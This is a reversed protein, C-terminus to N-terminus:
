TAIDTLFFLTRAAIEGALILAAVVYLLGTASDLSRIRATRWAMVTLALPVVLGFVVRVGFFIAYESLLLQVREPRPGPLVLLLALLVSQGVLSGLCFLTLQVLPRVSLTPAVLYWHGLSLAALASGLALAGALVALPTGVGLLQSSPAVLGAAWVAGLGLLPVLPGLLRTVPHWSKSGLGILYVTLLVEFAISLTREVAFWLAPTPDLAPSVLPPFGTRLWIALGGLILCCIGTFLTFGRDVERRLHVWFLAITGGMAAELLLLFTAQPLAQM